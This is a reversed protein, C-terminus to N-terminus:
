HITFMGFCAAVLLIVLALGLLFLIILVKMVQLFVSPQDKKKKNFKVYEFDPDENM